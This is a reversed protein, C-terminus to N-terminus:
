LNSIKYSEVAGDAASEMILHIDQRLKDVIADIEAIKQLMLECKLGIIEFNHPTSTKHPVVRGLKNMAERLNDSLDTLDVM